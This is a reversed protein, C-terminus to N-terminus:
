EWYHLVGDKSYQMCGFELLQFLIVYQLCVFALQLVVQSHPWIAPVQHWHVTTIIVELQSHVEQTKETKTGSQTPIEGGEKKATHLL